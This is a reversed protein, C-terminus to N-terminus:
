VNNLKKFIFKLSHESIKHEFHTDDSFIEFYGSSFKMLTKSIDTEFLEYTTGGHCCSDYKNIIKYFERKEGFSSSILLEFSNLIKNLESHNTEYDTNEKLNITIYLPLPGGVSFIKSIREDMTSFFEVTWAGGSIGIMHYSHFSYNKELYNLSLVIPHFYFKLPSFQESELYRFHDHKTLQIVGLDDINIIPQNNIGLLPMSFALVTFGQELFSDIIEIGNIFDGGHGQHYIIVQDNSNKPLFLYPYSEVGYEMHITLKEISSLNKLNSFRDDYIKEISVPLDNPLTKQKWVYFILQNKKSIIDTDSDLNILDYPNTEYLIPNIKLVDNDSPKNELFYLKVTKELPLHESGISYGSVFVVFLFFVFYIIKM